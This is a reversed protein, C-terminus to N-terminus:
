DRSEEKHNKKKNNELIKKEREQNQNGISSPDGEKERERERARERQYSGGSQHSSGGRTFHPFDDVFM